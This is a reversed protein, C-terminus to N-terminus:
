FMSKCMVLVIQDKINSCDKYKSNVNYTLTILVPFGFYNLSLQVILSHVFSVLPLPECQKTLSFTIICFIKVWLILLLPLNLKYDLVPRSRWRVSLTSRTLSTLIAATLSQAPRPHSDAQWGRFQSSTLYFVSYLYLAPLTPLFIVRQSLIVCVNPDFLASLM